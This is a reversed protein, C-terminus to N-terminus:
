NKAKKKIALDHLFRQLELAIVKSTLEKFKRYSNVKVKTDMLLKKPVFATTHKPGNYFSLQGYPGHKQPNKEDKCKCGATGCVNYQESLTAPVFSEIKSIRDKLSQIKRDLQHSV